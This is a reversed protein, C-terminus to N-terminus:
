DEGDQVMSTGKSGWKVIKRDLLVIRKLPEWAFNLTINYVPLFFFVYNKKFKTTQLGHWDEGDKVM